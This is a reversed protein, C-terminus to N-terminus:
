LKNLNLNLNHFLWSLDDRRALVTPEALLQVLKLVLAQVVVEVIDLRQDLLLLVRAPGLEQDSLVLLPGVVDHAILFCDAPSHSVWFFVSADDVPMEVAAKHLHRLAEQLGVRPHPVLIADAVVSVEGQELHGEGLEVILDGELIGLDALQLPLQEGLVQLQGGSDLVHLSLQFARWAFKSRTVFEDGLEFLWEIAGSRTAM